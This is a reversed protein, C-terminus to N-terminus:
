RRNAVLNKAAGQAFAAINEITTDLIRQVAERTDFASHPTIVVSPLRLLVHDALLTRLDHRAQFVQRLLEAEERIAPEEPLVDLGAARLKRQVLAEALAAVDVLEGRATNILVAGDKMKALEDPGILHRTAENLPVHLTVIDSARLLEDLDVYRFGLRLALGEDRRVDFALVNMDFGTAIRAVHRGIAGTGVVGLTKGALDFGQLGQLSFDGRRTRQAADILRHSISLLLAFTHEAVTSAGYSPVNAVLIGHAACYALDIHDVGTSRTAVLRLHDFRDLVGASVDSSIFTSVVDANASQEANGASLPQAFFRVEHERALDRFAGREWDELEFAAIKM